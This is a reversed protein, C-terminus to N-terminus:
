EKGGGKETRHQMGGWDDEERWRGMMWRLNPERGEAARLKRSQMVGRRWGSKKRDRERETDVCVYMCFCM